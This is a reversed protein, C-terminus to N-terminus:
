HALIAGLRCKLSVGNNLRRKRCRSRSLEDISDMQEYTQKKNAQTDRLHL